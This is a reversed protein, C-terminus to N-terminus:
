QLTRNEPQQMGADIIGFQDEYKRLNEQLALLLRKAHGPSLITRSVLKGFPAPQNQIFLFDMVFEEKAHRINTVNTYTGKMIEPDLQIEIKMENQDSQNQNM